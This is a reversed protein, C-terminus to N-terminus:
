LAMSTKRSGIIFADIAARTRLFVLEIVQLTRSEYETLLEFTLLRKVFLNIFSVMKCLRAVLGGLQVLTGVGELVRM